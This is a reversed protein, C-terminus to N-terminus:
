QANEMLIAHAMKLLEDRSPRSETRRGSDMDIVGLVFGTCEPNDKCACRFLVLSHLTEFNLHDHILRMMPRTTLSRAILAAHLETLRTVQQPSLKM